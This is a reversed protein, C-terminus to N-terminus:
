PLFTMVFFIPNLYEGDKLIEMHLHNGTSDGTSGVTAIVDGQQVTQGITFLLTACHAYKMEIGDASQIVIYNGYSSDFASVTVTGNIGALIETGEPVGIDIGRHLDKVGTIPHVRYGYYSTIFPRWAIDFPSEGYQRAGNTLMLINFHKTQDDDMLSALIDMLPVSILTVNLIHWEYEVDDEYRIEIEPEFKLTYQEDFIDLLVGEIDAYAFDQYVATLFAMLELPNHGINGINYRYEDYGSHTTEANLIELRLDTEWESYALAAQNIDEDAAAYSAAGFVGSGSSLMSVCMSLMAM